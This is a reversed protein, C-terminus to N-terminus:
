VRRFLLDRVPHGLRRGRREFKTQPRTEPRPLFRGAGAENVFGPAAGMVALMWEAYHEWDTALHVYGGPVLRRRLLAVLEPQVLRRKHHRKKPWPDPFLIHVGALSEDTLRTRLVEVADHAIVRVNGLGRAEVQLLLHGVGPRHVEVGLYDNEPHREALSALAEGDGFGIELVCPARRAFAGALDIPGFGETLDIGFRPWLETLAREQARTLRGERRVFSRIPRHFHSQAV